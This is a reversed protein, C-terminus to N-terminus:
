IYPKEATRYSIHSTGYEMIAGLGNKEPLASGPFYQFILDCPVHVINSVPFFHLICKLFNAKVTNM